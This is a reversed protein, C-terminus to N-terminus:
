RTARRGDAALRDDRFAGLAAAAADHVPTEIGAEEAFGAVAGSLVDLETRGGAEVDLLFSPTMAAPLSDILALV